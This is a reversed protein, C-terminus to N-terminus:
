NRGELHKLQSDALARMRGVNIGGTEPLIEGPDLASLGTLIATLHAKAREPAGERQWLGAALLHGMWHQKDIFLCRRLAELSEGLRGLEKLALAKIYFSGSNLPDAAIAAESATIAEDWRGCDAADHALRALDTVTSGPNDEVPPKATSRGGTAPQEQKRVSRVPDNPRARDARANSDSKPAAKTGSFPDSQIPRRDAGTDRAQKDPGAGSRKRYLSAGDSVIAELSLGAPPFPEAPGLALYGGPTLCDSLKGIVRDMEDRAFYILVNRCLILDFDDLGRMSAPYEGTKLNFLEFRVRSAVEERVKWTGNGVLEFRDDRVHMPTQRFSWERYVGRRARELVDSSIDTGLIKLTWSADPLLDQLLIAATYAEEGSSCGASWVKLTRTDKRCRIRDPIAKNRIANWQPADRFFYTEHITYASIWVSRLITESPEALRNLLTETDDVGLFKAAKATADRLDSRRNDPCEM